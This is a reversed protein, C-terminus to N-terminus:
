LKATAAKRRLQLVQVDPDVVVREPQFGCVIEVRRAEGPGLVVKMRADQYGQKPRGQDDFREGRVAALEVPVKATGANKAELTVKWAKGTRTLRAESLRYEPVAVQHFWQKVFADYAAPDAAFPRMAATFDQLVPYDPGGGWDAIFKQLGALMRERGLHRDMMWFVWGGKDYTVTTDGPRSGDVKVLPREADARRADGYREELRKMFEMRANTGKVKEFLLATSYHAMGESLLNGGPGEGPTLLNGWWQHAAEHATVLFVADTKEDSRTLFGIGESFSINTPFGQAYRALNPFESIKLENWPFPHFWESYHRRSADLAAIMADINYAHGPHYYIATGQGRRVDWRGGVVNFLRVPHDSRWVVTRQGDKETESVKTGVSNFIYESPGTVSIRTPFPRGTVFSADTRGEYFDEAYDRPEYDNEDEKVGIGEVFGVVPAFSPSFGTLVVGSPLIFEGAGGGNKSIGEPLRGEFEWGVRVKGGPPLPAPPAFVYLGSRDEPKYAKGNFTWRVKEWHPGGTLAFRKLPEERDNVLEYSGRSSLWRDRPQIRLDMAAGAIAPQPAKLWTALNQKWYDRGRKEMEGGEFGNDVARWLLIGAVLPVAAYPALRLARRWLQAAQLRHVAAIADGERRGFARVAIATFLAALGLYLIRNLLLARRDLGLAGMDSWSISEILWWNGVWSMGGKLQFYMSLAMASLGAGYTLYRQGGVAQVALIFCTWVLFTPILLAGWLLLFPRVDLAVTGQALLAVACGLFTAFALLLGAACNALAKGFLFSATRSPSSYSIAALGTAREREISEVTYFMLLLCVLITLIEMTQEALTGPTLLVETQFAGLSLLSNTITQIVILVGFLYLGPSALLNKLETGAVAAAGRVLGLPRGAMKLDALPRPFAVVAGGAEGGGASVAEGAAAAQRRRLRSSGGAAGQLHAALHRQAMLVGLLGLGLFILRSIVFPVDLGIRTTNYFEAGRDLKLWTENLWRFGSSDVLMLLRNIEPDLWTPAWNWLFFGSLMLLATPFLFVTIPKRWREGLYFAVGLYFVLAPLAFVLVPRLYNVLGFPGRIEASEADPLGHYFFFTVLLHIALAGLFGGLIALFKGWVYESPRLPTSLLMDSVKAEDDSIIAMGSAISGFFGYLMAVLVALLMAFSFESTIWAKTGGVTTDGSQIQMSGTSFGWSMFVLLGILFWFLPRKFTHFLEQSFIIRARALSM